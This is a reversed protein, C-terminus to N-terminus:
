AFEAFKSKKKPDADAPDELVGEPKILRKRGIPTAGCATLWEVAQKMDQRDFKEKSKEVKCLLKALLAVFLSDREGIFQPDVANRLWVYWTAESGELKIPLKDVELLKKGGKSPMVKSAAQKAHSAM